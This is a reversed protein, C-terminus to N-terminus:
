HHLLDAIDHPLSVKKPPSQKMIRQLIVIDRPQM